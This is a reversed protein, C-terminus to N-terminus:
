VCGAALYHPKLWSQWSADNGSLSTQSTVSGSGIDDKNHGNGM